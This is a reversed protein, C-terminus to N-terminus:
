GLPGTVAGGGFSGAIAKAIDEPKPGYSGSQVAQRLQSVKQSDVGDAARAANLLQATSQADASLTVAESAAGGAASTVADPAGVPEVPKGQTTGATAPAQIAAERASQGNPLSGISSTM